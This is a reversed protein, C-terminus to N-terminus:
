VPLRLAEGVFSGTRALLQGGGERNIFLIGRAGREAARNSVERMPAASTSDLLLVRGGVDAPFDEARGAGVSVVDADFAAHPQTYSLAVARLPRALPAILEVRDNGREWGPMTFSEVEPQLGLSRLETALQDLAARNGVSGTLRGGFDDCLRTLMAHAARSSDDFPSAAHVACAVLLAILHLAKGGLRKGAACTRFRTPPLASWRAPKPFREMDGSLM